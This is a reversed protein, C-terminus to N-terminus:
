WKTLNPNTYAEPHNAIYQTTPYDPPDCTVMFDDEDQYIRIYDVRMTAPMLSALGTMNLPAFGNSMGFNVVIAM